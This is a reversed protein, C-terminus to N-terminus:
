HYVAVLTDTDSSQSSNQYYISIGLHLVTKHHTNIALVQLYNFCLM